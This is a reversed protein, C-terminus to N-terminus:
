SGFGAVIEANVAPETGGCEPHGFGSASITNNGPAPGRQASKVDYIINDAPSGVGGPVSNLKLLDRVRWAVNHDACSSDGSVGLGGLLTGDTYLALGGGFVNLGGIRKDVMPDEVTGFAAFRGEYAVSTDIPNSEQLGFLSGGPQTAAWLNATSLALGPLSFSNATNAKQASIVRSGPWQEGTDGGSFAVACVKGDRAVITGWMNLDFGGNTLNPAVSEKLASELSNFLVQPDGLAACDDAASAPASSLLLCSLAVSGAIAFAPHTVRYM